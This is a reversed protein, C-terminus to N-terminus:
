VGPPLSQLHGGSSLQEHSEPAGRADCEGATRGALGASCTFVVQRLLPPRVDARRRRLGDDGARGDEDRRRRVDERQVALGALSPPRHVADDVGGVSRAVGDGGCHVLVREVDGAAVFDDPRYRGTPTTPTRSPSRPIRPM